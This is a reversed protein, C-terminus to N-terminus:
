GYSIGFSTSKASNRMDSTVEEIPVNFVLSATESHIDGDDLFAQTMEEDEAVLALLRSELSSFDAQVLAGNDFRSVFMRKIPYKYDFRNPDGTTRPFNQTNM